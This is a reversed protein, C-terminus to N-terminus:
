LGYHTLGLTEPLGFMVNMNQIASGAAGKIMNDIVGVLKIMGREPNVDLGIHCFNSGAVRAVSPYIDYDKGHLEGSRPHDLVRVFYEGHAGSGYYHRYLDILADRSWQSGPAARVSAQLYIGRPFNAHATNFDVLVDRGAIQSLQQEIEPGHRHGELSYPLIGNAAFQHLLERKAGSGAGSTGNLAHISIAHDAAAGAHALLPALSLLATIVYCGPNAVLRAAGLADRNFETAGYVATSLLHPARHEAHYAAQYAEATSFRFDPSLDVVRCGASLFTGAQQMAEGSPTAFFVCDVTAALPAIDDPSTFELGCGLLNRHVSAFSNRTRAVAHIAGVQPHNLLLRCLEGGASGAAGIVAVSLKQQSM